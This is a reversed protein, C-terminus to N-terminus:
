SLTVFQYSTRQRSFRATGIVILYLEEGDGVTLSLTGSMRDDLPLEEVSTQAGRRVVLVRYSQPLVNQMRVFGKADWGDLGDEFGATYSIEPIRINDVIMGEGNVAADTIYEFRVLAHKGAYPSLDVQERIWEPTDASGSTGTWGWGYNNGAPNTKTGSPTQIITWTKGDDVSVELYGYDYDKELDHWLDFQFTAKSGAPLDFARTLTMDSQDGRNSWVYYKGTQPDVPLARESTQGSFFIQVLGSCPLLFYDIGYQAVSTKKDPVPCSGTEQVSGLDPLAPYNKFSYRGNDFSNDRLLLAVAFDAVVDEATLTRGTDPDTIGLNQLTDDIGILGNKPNHVLAKTAESGFRNLFYDFFLFSVGYHSGFDSSSPDSWTNMQLDTDQLYESDAGGVTFGNLLVALESFGENVWGDENPDGYWHIMHQFEHALVSLIYEDTLVQNDANIYFMEHQNSYPHAQRSVEDNSGYAGAITDGLGKVYLLYLHPDGDIGPSWEPGFFNRDTPYISNEFKDVLTRIEGDDASATQDVWFYVHPTAYRMVATASFSKNTDMNLVYFSNRTGVPVPDAHDSIVRPINAIGKLREAQEVLDGAPPDGAIMSQLTELAESSVPDSIELPFATQTSGESTPSNTVTPAGKNTPTPLARAATHTPLPQLAWYAGLAGGGAVGLCCLCVVLALSVSLITKLQRDM